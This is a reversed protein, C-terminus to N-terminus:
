FENGSEDKDLMSDPVQMKILFEAKKVIEAYIEAFRQNYIEDVIKNLATEEEESLKM